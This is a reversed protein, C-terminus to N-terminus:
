IDTQCDLYTDGEEDVVVSNHDHKEPTDFQDGDDEEEEEAEAEKM